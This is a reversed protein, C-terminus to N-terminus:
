RLLKESSFLLFWGFYIITLIRLILTPTQVATVKAQRVALLRLCGGEGMDLQKMKCCCRRKVMEQQPTLPEAQAYFM